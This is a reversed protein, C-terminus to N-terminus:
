NHDNMDEGVVKVIIPIGMIQTKVNPQENLLIVKLAIGGKYDIVSISLANPFEAKARFILDEVPFM